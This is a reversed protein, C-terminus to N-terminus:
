LFHWRVSFASKYIDIPQNTNSVSITYLYIYLLTSSVMLGLFFRTYSFWGFWTKVWAKKISVNDYVFLPTIINFDRKRAQGVLIPHASSAYCLGIWSKPWCTVHTYRTSSGFIRKYNKLHFSSFGFTKVLKWFLNWNCSSSVIEYYFTEWLLVLVMTEDRKSSNKYIYVELIRMINPPWIFTGNMTLPFMFKWGWINVFIDWYHQNNFRNSYTTGDIKFVHKKPAYEWGGALWMGPVCYAGSLHLREISLILRFLCTYMLLIWSFQNYALLICSDGIAHPFIIHCNAVCGHWM